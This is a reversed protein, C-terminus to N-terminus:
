DVGNSNGKENNQKKLQKELHEIQREMLNLDSNWCWVVGILLLVLIVLVIAM